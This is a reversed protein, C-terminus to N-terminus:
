LRRWELATAGAIALVGLGLGLFGNYPDPPLVRLAGMAVIIAVGVAALLLMDVTWRIM